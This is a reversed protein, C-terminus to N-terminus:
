CSFLTLLILNMITSNATSVADSAAVAADADAVVSTPLVDTCDPISLLAPDASANGNVDDALPVVVSADTYTSLPLAAVPSTTPSYESLLPAGPARSPCADSDLGLLPAHFVNLKGETDILALVGYQSAIRPVPPCSLNRSSLVSPLQWLTVLSTMLRVDIGDENRAPRHCVHLTEAYRDVDSEAGATDSEAGV